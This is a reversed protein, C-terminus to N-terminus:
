AMLTAAGLRGCHKEMRTKLEQRARLLRSKAAPISIGLRDAVEPMPLENLDRLVLVNRLLPPIRQLERKLRDLVEGRGLKQEPTPHEDVLPIMMMTDEGPMTDEIPRVRARKTQRMRMLCCNLVIRTIWTSFKAEERFTHINQYAKSYANQVEDEAEERNRLLYLALKISGDYHRRTLEAFAEHNGARAIGVLIEDAQTLDVSTGVPCDSVNVNNQM